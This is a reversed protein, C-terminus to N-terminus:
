EAAPEASSTAEAETGTNNLEARIRAALAEADEGQEANSAEEVPSLAPEEPEEAVATDEVPEETVSEMAEDAMVEVNEASADDSADDSSGCAALALALAAASATALGPRSKTKM